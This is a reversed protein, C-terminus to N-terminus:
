LGHARLRRPAERRHGTRLRHGYLWRRLHTAPPLCRDRHAVARPQPLHRLRHYGGARELTRRLPSRRQLADGPPRPVRGANGPRATTIEGAMDTNETFVWVSDSSSMLGCTPNIYNLNMERADIERLLESLEAATPVRWDDRGAFTFEACETTPDIIAAFCGRADNIWVLDTEADILLEMDNPGVLEATFRDATMMAEAGDDDDSCAPLALLALAASVFAATATNLYM